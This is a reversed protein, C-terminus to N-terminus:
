IKDNEKYYDCFPDNLDQDKVADQCVETAIFLDGIKNPMKFHLSNPDKKPVCNQNFKYDGYEHLTFFLVADNTKM